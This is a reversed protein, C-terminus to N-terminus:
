TREGVVLGEDDFGVESRLAEMAAAIFVEQREATAAALVEHHEAVLAVGEIGVKVVWSELGRPGGRARSASRGGSARVIGDVPGPPGRPLFAPQLVQESDTRTSWTHAPM